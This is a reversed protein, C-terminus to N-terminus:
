YTEDFKQKEMLASLSPLDIEDKQGIDKSANVERIM